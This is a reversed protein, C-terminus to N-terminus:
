LHCCSSLIFLTILASRAESPSIGSSSSGVSDIQFSLVQFVAEPGLSIVDPFRQSLIRCLRSNLNLERPNLGPTDVGAVAATALSPDLPWPIHHRLLMNRLGAIIRRQEEITRRAVSLSHDGGTCLAM